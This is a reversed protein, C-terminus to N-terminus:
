SQLAARNASVSALSWAAATREVSPREDGGAGPGGELKGGAGRYIFRM